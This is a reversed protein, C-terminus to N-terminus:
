APNNGAKLANEIANEFVSYPQSGVIKQGNIFITPTGSLNKSLGEQYEAQVTAAKIHSDLCENFKQTDLNLEKAYNKFIELHTSSRGWTSQNSFLLDHMEWFKNQDAACESAESAEPAKPHINLPFHKFEYKIKGTDVYNAKIKAFSESYYKKCYPCEFDSYELFTVTSNQNGMVKNSGSASAFNLLGFNMRSLLFGVLLGILFISLTKFFTNQESM